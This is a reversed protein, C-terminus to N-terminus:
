DEFARYHTFVEREVYGRLNKASQKLDSFTNETRKQDEKQVYDRGEHVLERRPTILYRLYSIDSINALAELLFELDRKKAVIDSFLPKSKKLTKELHDIFPVMLMKGLPASAGAGLFLVTNAKDVVSM